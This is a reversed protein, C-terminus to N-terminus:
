QEEEDRGFRWSRVARSALEVDRRRIASQRKKIAYACLITRGERVYLLRLHPGRRGPPTIKLEWLGLGAGEVREARGCPPRGSRLSAELITAAVVFDNWESTSLGRFFEQVQKSIAKFNLWEGEYIPSCDM